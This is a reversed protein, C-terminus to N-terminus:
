DTNDILVHHERYLSEGDKRSDIAIPMDLSCIEPHSVRASVDEFFQQHQEESILDDRSDVDERSMPIDNFIIERNSM